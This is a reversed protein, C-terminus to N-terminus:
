EYATILRATVRPLLAEWAMIPERTLADGGLIILWLAEPHPYNTWLDSCIAPLICSSHKLGDRWAKQICAYLEDSGRM